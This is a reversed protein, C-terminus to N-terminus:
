FPNSNEMRKKEYAPVDIVFTNAYYGCPVPIRNAEYDLITQAASTFKLRALDLLGTSPAYEQIGFPPSTQLTLWRFEVTLGNPIIASLASIQMFAQVDWGYKFIDRNFAEAHADDITKLETILYGTVEGDENIYQTLHDIRVKVELGMLTTYISQEVLPHSNNTPDLLNAYPSAFFADMLTEFDEQREKDVVTQGRAEALAFQRDKWEKNVKAAFTQDPNPRDEPNFVVYKGDFLEPTLISTHVMTGFSQSETEKSKAKKFFHYDRVSKVAHKVTSSQKYPAALYTEMSDGVLKNKPWQEDPTLFEEM